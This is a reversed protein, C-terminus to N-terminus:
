RELRMLQGNMAQNDSNVYQVYLVQGYFAHLTLKGVSDIQFVTNTSASHLKESSRTSTTLDKATNHLEVTALAAVV